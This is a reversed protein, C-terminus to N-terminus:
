GAPLGAMRGQPVQVKSILFSPCLILATWLTSRRVLGDWAKEFLRRTQVHSTRWWIWNWRYGRSWERERGCCTWYNRECPLRQRRWKLLSMAVNAGKTQTRSNTQHLDVKRVANINKDSNEYKCPVCEEPFSPLVVLRILFIAQRWQANHKCLSESGSPPWIPSIQSLTITGKICIFYTLM